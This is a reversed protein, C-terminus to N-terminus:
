LQSHVLSVKLTELSYMMAHKLDKVASLVCCVDNTAIHSLKLLHHGVHGFHGPTYKRTSHLVELFNGTQYM